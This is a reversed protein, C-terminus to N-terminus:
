AAGFATKAIERTIKEGIPAMHVNDSSGGCWAGLCAPRCLVGPWVLEPSSFHADENAGQEYPEAERSLGCQGLLM